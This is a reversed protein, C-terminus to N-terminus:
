SLIPKIYYADTAGFLKLSRWSQVKAPEYGTPKKRMPFVWLTKPAVQTPNAPEHSVAQVITTALPTPDHRIGRRGAQSATQEAECTPSPPEKLFRLHVPSLRLDEKLTLSSQPSVYDGEASDVKKKEM